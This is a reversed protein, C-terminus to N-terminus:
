KQDGDSRQEASPELLADLEERARRQWDEISCQPNEGWIHRRGLLACDYYGEDPDSSNPPYEAAADVTAFSCNACAGYSDGPNAVDGTLLYRLAPGLRVEAM